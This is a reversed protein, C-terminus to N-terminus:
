PGPLVQTPDCPYDPYPKYPATHDDPVHEGGGPCRNDQRTVAANNFNQARQDPPILATTPLGAVASFLSVHLPIRAIGGNADYIGGHSFDDFWGTLDPAYPRAYALEPTGTALAKASAPFAGERTAGNAQVPGIAVNRVPVNSRTLDVLDNNPGARRILNNLDRVTPQADQALPRLEALYPRLRKAVPKSEDVLPKLDDLTARLNVFTTDARRMFPPLRRIADALATDQRGIAGTTTALNDVLGALDQRRAAVDSVLNAGAVIFRRFLPKDSDLERFLRSSAALSPSLYLWGRNVDKGRGAYQAASGRIVGSLAKQERKGFINFFQDLDVASTTSATPIVGHNDIARTGAPPLRLDVYRNAIGSLSAARVTAQTGEHLPAYGDNISLTL